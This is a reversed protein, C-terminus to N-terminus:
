RKRNSMPRCKAGLECMVSLPHSDHLAEEKSNKERRTCRRPHLGTANKEEQKQTGTNYKERTKRRKVEFGHSGTELADM